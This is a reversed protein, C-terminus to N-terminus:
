VMFSNGCYAVTAGVITMKSKFVRLQVLGSIKVGLFYFWDSSAFVLMSQM